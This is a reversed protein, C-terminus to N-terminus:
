LTFKVYLEFCLCEKPNTPGIVYNAIATVKVKKCFTKAFHISRIKKLSKSDWKCIGFISTLSAIPMGNWKRFDCYLRTVSLKSNFNNKDKLVFHFRYGNNQVLVSGDNSMSINIGKGIIKHLSEIYVNDSALKEITSKLDEVNKKLEQNEVGPLNISFFCFMSTVFVLNTFNTLKFVNM